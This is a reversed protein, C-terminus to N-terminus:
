MFPINCQEEHNELFQKLAQVAPNNGVSIKNELITLASKQFNNKDQVCIGYEIFIKAKKLLENIHKDSSYNSSNLALDILPTNGGNDKYHISLGQQM